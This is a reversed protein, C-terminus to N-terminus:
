KVGHIIHSLLCVIGMLEWSCGMTRCVKGKGFKVSLVQEAIHYQHRIANLNRGVLHHQGRATRVKVGHKRAEFFAALIPNRQLTDVVPSQLKQDLVNVSRDNFNGLVIHLNQQRRGVQQLQGVHTISATIIQLSLEIRAVAQTNPVKGVDVPADIQQVVSFGIDFLVKRLYQTQTKIELHM